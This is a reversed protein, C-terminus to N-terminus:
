NSNFEAPLCRRDRRGRRRGRPEERSRKVGRPEERSRETRRPDKRSREAERNKKSIEPEKRSMRGGRPERWGGGREVWGGEGRGEGEWMGMVNTYVHHGLVHQHHWHKMDGGTLFDMTSRGIVKWWAESYGIASHCADHMM